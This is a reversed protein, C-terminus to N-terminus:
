DSFGQSQTTRALFFTFFEQGSKYHESLEEIRGESIIYGTLDAAWMRIFNRDSWPICHVTIATISLLQSRKILTKRIKMMDISDPWGHKQRFDESSLGQLRGLCDQFRITLERLEHKLAENRNFQLQSRYTKAMQNTLYVLGGSTLLSALTGIGLWPLSLGICLCVIGVFKEDSTLRMKM